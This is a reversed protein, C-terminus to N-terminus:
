HDIGRLIEHLKLLGTSNIERINQYFLTISLSLMNIYLSSFPNPSIKQIDQWTHKLEM